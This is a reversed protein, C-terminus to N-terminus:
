RRPLAFERASDGDRRPPTAIIAAVIDFRRGTVVRRRHLGLQPALLRSGRREPWCAHLTNM